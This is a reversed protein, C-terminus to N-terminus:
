CRTMSGTAVHSRPGSHGPRDTGAPRIRDGPGPSGVARATRHRRGRPGEGPRSATVARRELMAITKPDPDAGDHEASWRDILEALKADVQGSRESFLDRLREPVCRSIRRGNATSRDWAVGLRSTLETRLAADYLWGITRQQRKLFRADLSLWKGTPDQVKASIIAHTHLQPDVTRSTHQRFLAATVGGTDVQDVGNTGRRTM